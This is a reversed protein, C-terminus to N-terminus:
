RCSVGEPRPQTGFKKWKEPMRHAFREREERTLLLTM